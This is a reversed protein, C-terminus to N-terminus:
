SRKKRMEDVFRIMQIIPDYEKPSVAVFERDKGDSLRDFAAKAKTPAENFAKVIAAKLDAPLSALFAYPSNPLLDSKYVIRFDEYKMPSGDANKLMGKRLMRTLNSDDEANWWNAAADVTGQVLALVANEHSGAYISRGFFSDVDFGDRNLFFRPAQNGSASNPDVLALTKGKLDAMKQYPSKALVYTVSYYGLSGDANRTTAFPEVKVGTMVARAYSAPGYAAVHINGARQGEIVAAYDNAIRLTIKVGLETSLYEIFPQFRETVGSANEAPVVAFVLEPHSGKWSQALAPTAALAFAGAAIGFAQRRTIM